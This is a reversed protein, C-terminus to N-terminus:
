ETGSATKYPLGNAIWDGMGAASLNYVTSFGLSKMIEMAQGSRNGSRCYVFYIKTKNLVDLEDRFTESYFDINIAGKIHGEAFESPTRVDLIIFDPNNINEEVLNAAEQITISKFINTDTQTENKKRGTIILSVMLLCLIVVYLFRTNIKM